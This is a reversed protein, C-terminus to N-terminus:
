QQQSSANNPPHAAPTNPTVVFPNPQGPVTKVTNLTRTTDNTRSAAM